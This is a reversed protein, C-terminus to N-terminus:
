GGGNQDMPSIIQPDAIDLHKIRTRAFHGDAHRAAADRFGVKKKIPL